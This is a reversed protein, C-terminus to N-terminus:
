PTAEPQRNLMLLLLAGDMADGKPSVIRRRLAEDALRSALREAISGCLALPLQGEPDLARALQELETIAQAILRAATADDAEREFVLPALTAYRQQGAAACWALLADASDPKGTESRALQWIQLALPGAPERRDFARQAHRMAALGLWAGSGEDGNVWGWGGVQGRSGDPRLVEGISGTGAILLVGPRGGHAGLLAADSDNALVLRACAPAAVLFADRLPPSNAGSLGLGLECESWPPTPLGAARAADALAAAIAAWAPEAGQGLASPGARGEGLRRGTLDLLRLRTNTGGGDVAVRWRASSHSPAAVMFVVRIGVYVITM